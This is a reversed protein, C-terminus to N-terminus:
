GCYEDLQRLPGFVEERVREPVENGEVVTESTALSFEGRYLRGVAHLRGVCVRRRRMLHRMHRVRCM